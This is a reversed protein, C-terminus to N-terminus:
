AVCPERATSGTSNRVLAPAPEELDSSRIDRGLGATFVRALRAAMRPSVSVQRKEVRSLQERSYEIKRALESIGWGAELRLQKIPHPSPQPVDTM